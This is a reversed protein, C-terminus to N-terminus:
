LYTWFLLHLAAGVIYLFKPSKKYMFILNQLNSWIDLVHLFAPTFHVLCSRIIVVSFPVDWQDMRQLELNPKRLLLYCYSVPIVISGVWSASHLFSRARSQLPLQFYVFHLALVWNSWLGSTEPRTGVDWALVTACIFASSQRFIKAVTNIAGNPAGYRPTVNNPAKNM